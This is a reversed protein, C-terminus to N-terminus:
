TGDPQDTEYVLIEWSSTAPASVTLTIPEGMVEDVPGAFDDAGSNLSPSLCSSSGPGGEAPQSTIVMSGGGSCASVIYYRETPVFTPLTVSGTGKTAAVLTKSGPPPTFTDFAAPLPSPTALAASQVIVIEWVSSPDAQVRLTLPSGTIQNRSYPWNWSGIPDHPSSCDDESIVAGDSGVLAFTGSGVCASEITYNDPPTFSPLTASGKGLTVPVLTQYGAPLPSAGLIPLMSWSASSPGAPSKEAPSQGNDNHSNLEIAFATAAAAIVAVGVTGALFQIAPRRKPKAGEVFTELRSPMAEREYHDFFARLRMDLRPDIEVM